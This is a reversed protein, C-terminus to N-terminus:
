EKRIIRNMIIQRATEEPSINSVDIKVTDLKEYLPLRDMSRRLVDETRLGQDIDKQLRIKLAKPSAVLSFLFVQCDKLELRALIRDMIEQEHMVWCFVINEYVSCRIFSNLMFIINEMVMAKTEENVQFPDMDWCWDGDLFACNPLKKKLVQCTTTKGVGMTGGILYINKM